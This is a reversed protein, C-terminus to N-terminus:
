IKHSLWGMQWEMHGQFPNQLPLRFLCSVMRYYTKRADNWVPYGMSLNMQVVPQETPYGNSILLYHLLGILLLVTHSSVKLNAIEEKGEFLSQTSLSPFALLLLQL